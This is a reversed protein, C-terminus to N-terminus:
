EENINRFRKLLEGLREDTPRQDEPTTEPEASEDYYTTIEPKKEFGMVEDFPIKRMHEKILQWMEKKDKQYYERQHRSIQLIAIIFRVMDMSLSDENIGFEADRNYDVLEKAFALHLFERARRGEAIVLDKDENFLGVVSGTDAAELDKSEFDGEILEEMSYPSVTTGPAVSNEEAYLGRKVVDFLLSMKLEDLDVSSRSLTNLYDLFSLMSERKPSSDATAWRTDTDPLADRPTLAEDPKQPFVDFYRRVLSDDTHSALYERVTTIPYQLYHGAQSRLGGPTFIVHGHDITAAVATDSRSYLIGSNQRMTEKDTTRPFLRMGIHTFLLTRKASNELFHPNDTVFSHVSRRSDEESSGYGTIRAIRNLVRLKGAINGASNLLIEPAETVMDLAPLGQQSLYEITDIIREGRAYVLWPVKGVSEAIDLNYHHLARLSSVVTESRPPSLRIQDHHSISEGLVPMMEIFLLRAKNILPMKRGPHAQSGILVLDNVDQFFDSINEGSDSGSATQLGPALLTRQFVDTGFHSESSPVQFGLNFLWTDNTSLPVRLWALKKSEQDAQKPRLEEPNGRGM